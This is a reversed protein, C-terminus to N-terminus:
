SMVFVPNLGFRVDFGLHSHKGVVKGPTVPYPSTVGSSSSVLLPLGKRWALAWTSNDTHILFM